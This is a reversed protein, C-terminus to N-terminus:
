AFRSPPSAHPCRPLFAGLPSSSCIPLSPSLVWGALPVAALRSRCPGRLCVSVGCVGPGASPQTLRAFAPLLLLPARQRSGGQRGIFPGCQPGATNIAGLGRGLFPLSGVPEGRAQVLCGTHVHARPTSLVPTVSGGALVCGRPSLPLLVLFGPLAPIVGLLIRPSLPLPPGSSMVSFPWSFVRCLGKSAPQISSFGDPPTLPSRPQAGRGASSPLSPHPVAPDPFAGTVPEFCYGRGPGGLPSSVPGASRQAGEWRMGVCWYAAPAPLLAFADEAGKNRHQLM